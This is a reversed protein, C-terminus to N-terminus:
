WTQGGPPRRRGGELREAIQQRLPEAPDERISRLWREGEGPGLEAPAAERRESSEPPSPAPSEDRETNESPEGSVGATPEEEPPLREVAWEYNFKAELDDSRALLATWLAGRAERYREQALLVTGLNFAAIFRAERDDSELGRLADLYAGSAPSAQGLRYLANGIRIQSAASPGSTREARRYLSLAERAEGRALQADGERLWTHPGAALLLLAVVGLPAPRSARRTRPSSLYLELALVLAALVIWPAFPPLAREKEPRRPPPRLLAETEPREDIERFFSGGTVHAIRQLVPDVRRSRVAEGAADRLPDSGGGPVIGGERTGFGVAAVRVGRSRLGQLAGTLDGGAHEGDTLLLITRPRSSRPDFVNAAVRLARALDTGPRSLLDTDLARVYTLVADRDQTLPLAAFADGAFFVLGLRVGETGEVLREALRLARRLRSPPTDTTNMSRSVDILLVVDSSAGGLRPPESSLRVLAVTTAVLALGLLAARVARLRGFPDAGLWLRIERHGRVTSLALALLALLALPLVTRIM